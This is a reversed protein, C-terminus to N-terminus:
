SEASYTYLRAIWSISYHGGRCRLTTAISFHAKLDGEVLTALKVIYDYIYINIHPYIHM